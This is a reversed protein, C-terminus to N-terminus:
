VGLRDLRERVAAVLEDRRGVDAFWWAQQCYFVVEYVAQREEFGPALTARDRYRELFADGATETWLVYTVEAEPHGYYCAPDVFAAVRDGAVVLNEYWVDGHLLAPADPADLLDPLRDGLRWIRRLLDDSFGVESTALAAYYRLRHDRVFAPWSDTWPNPKPLPGATTDFPFGFRNATVDHLAALHDALDREVASTVSGSGAVFPLLLLDDSAHLVDPVPLSSHEALYRLMRAEVTLPTPATKAVVRRGDALDVREARGTVGGELRESAVVRGGLVSEIRGRWARRDPFGTPVAESSDHGDEDAGEPDEPDDAM